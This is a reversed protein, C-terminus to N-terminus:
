PAPKGLYSSAIREASAQQDYSVLWAIRRATMRAPVKLGAARERRHEHVPMPAPLGAAVAKRNAHYAKM